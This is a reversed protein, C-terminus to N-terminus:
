GSILTDMFSKISYNEKTDLLEEKKLTVDSYQLVFIKCILLHHTHVMLHCFNPSVRAGDTIIYIYIYIYVVLDTIYSASSACQITSWESTTLAYKNEVLCNTEFYQAFVVGLWFLFCKISNQTVLM